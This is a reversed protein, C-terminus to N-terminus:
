KQQPIQPAPTALINGIQEQVAGIMDKRETIIKLIKEKQEEVFKIKRDYFELAAPLKKSIFYNAGVDIIVRDYSDITGNMYLSQNMPVLMPKGVVRDNKLNKIIDKNDLYTQQVSYLDEYSQQLDSLENQLTQHLGSLDRASLSSLPIPKPASM